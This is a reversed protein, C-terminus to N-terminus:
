YQHVICIHQYFLIWYSTTRQEDPPSSDDGEEERVGAGGKSWFDQPTEEISRLDRKNSSAVPCVVVAVSLSM